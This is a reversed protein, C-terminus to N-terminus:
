SVKQVVFNENNVSDYKQFDNNAELHEEEEEINTVKKDDPTKHKKEAIKLNSHTKSDEESHINEYEPFPDISDDTNEALNSIPSESLEEHNKEDSDSSSKEVPKSCNNFDIGTTESIFQGKILGEKMVIDESDDITDNANDLSEITINSDENTGVTEVPLSNEINENRSIIRIRNGTVHTINEGDIGNYLRDNRHNNKMHKLMEDRDSDNFSCIVCQFGETSKGIFKHYVKCLNRHVQFKLKSHFNDSCYKCKVFKRKKSTAIAINPKKFTEKIQDSELILEKAIQLKNNESSVSVNEDNKSSTQKDFNETKDM